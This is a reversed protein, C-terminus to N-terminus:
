QKPPIALVPVSSLSIVKETVSGLFFRNEDHLQRTAMIIMDIDNDKAYTTIVEVPRGSIIEGKVKMSSDTFFDAIFDDMLQAAKTAHGEIYDKSLAYRALQTVSPTVYLVVIEGGYNKAWSAAYGAIAKNEMFIDVPLLIKKINNM